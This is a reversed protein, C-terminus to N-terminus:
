PVQPNVGVVVHTPANSSKGATITMRLEYGEKTWRWHHVSGQTSAEVQTWGNDSFVNAYFREVEDVPLPTDFVVLQHTGMVVQSEVPLPFEKGEFGDLVVPTDETEQPREGLAQSPREITIPKNVDYVNYVIEVRGPFPEPSFDFRFSQGEIVAHYRVVYHGDRALWVDGSLSTVGSQEEPSMYSLVTPSTFHYRDTPIGNIVVNEEALTFADPHSMLTAPDMFGQEPNNQAPTKVWTGGTSVYLDGGVQVLKVVDSTRNREEPKAMSRLGRITTRRARQPHNTADVNVELHAKSLGTAPDPYVDIHGQVRYTHLADLAARYDVQPAPKPEITPTPTVRPAACASLLGLVLVIRIFTWMKGM